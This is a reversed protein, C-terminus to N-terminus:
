AGLSECRRMWDFTRKLGEELAVAPAWRLIKEARRIDLVSIPVDCKRVSMYKRPVPREILNEIKELLEHITHGKGSGINFVNPEGGFRMAKLLAEVVDGVYVYDRTVSGDGWIEIMEGALAKGLFVAVAGQSSNPRQREGYANAVRLVVFELGHLTRYLSLYKEITQKTIGYSVIPELPHSEPTPIKMPIGYVTGGSSLFVIKRGKKRVLAELLRLTPVVNSEVDYVPDENSNHPLTTGILHFVVDVEDLAAGIDATSQFDGVVWQLREAASFKRYPVVRPREFVRVIHGDALLRDTLSSGIFGGGGLVLCKM